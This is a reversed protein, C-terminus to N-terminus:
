NRKFDGRGAGLADNFAAWCKLSSAYSPISLDIAEIMARQAREELLDEKPPQAVKVIECAQRPPAGKYVIPGLRADVMRAEFLKMNCAQGIQFEKKFEELIWALM